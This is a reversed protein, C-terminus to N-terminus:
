ACYIRGRRISPRVRKEDGIEAEYTRCLQLFSAIEFYFLKYTSDLLILIIENGIVALYGEDAHGNSQLTGRAIGISADVLGSQNGQTM